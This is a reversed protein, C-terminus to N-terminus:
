HMEVDHDSDDYVPTDDPHELHYGDPLNAEQNRYTIMRGDVTDVITVSTSYM